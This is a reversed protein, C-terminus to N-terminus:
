KKLTLMIKYAFKGPETLKVKATGAIIHNDTYVKDIENQLVASKILKLGSNQIQNAISLFELPNLIIYELQEESKHWDLMQNNNDSKKINFFIEDSDEGQFVWQPNIRNLLVRITAADHDQLNLVEKLQSISLFKDKTNPKVTISQAVTSNKKIQNSSTFKLSAFLSLLIFFNLTSITNMQNTKFM